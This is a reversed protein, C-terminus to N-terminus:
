RSMEVYLHPSPRTRRTRKVAGRYHPVIFHMHFMIFGMFHMVLGTEAPGDDNREYYERSLNDTSNQTVTKRKQAVGAMNKGVYKSKAQTENREM